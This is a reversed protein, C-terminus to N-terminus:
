KTIEVRVRPLRIGAWVPPYARWFVRRGQVCLREYGLIKKLASLVIALILGAMTGVVMGAFTGSFAVVLLVTFAIDVVAAYGLWKRIGGIRNCTLLAAAVTTCSLAIYVLM